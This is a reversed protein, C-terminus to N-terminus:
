WDFLPWFIVFSCAALHVFKRSFEPVDYKVRILHGIEMILKVYLITLLASLINNVIPSLPRTIINSFLPSKLLFKNLRGKSGKYYTGAAM